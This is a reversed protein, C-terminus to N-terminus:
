HEEAFHNSTVIALFNECRFASQILMNALFVIFLWCQMQPIEDATMAILIERRREVKNAVNSINM